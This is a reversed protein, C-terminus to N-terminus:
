LPERPFTTGPNEFNRACQLVDADTVNEPENIHDHYLTEYCQKCQHENFQEESEEMYEAARSCYVWGTRAILWLSLSDKDNPIVTERVLATANVSFPIVSFLIVLVCFEPIVHLPRM